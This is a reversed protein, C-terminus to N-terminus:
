PSPADALILFPPLTSIITTYRHTPLVRVHLALWALRLLRLRLPPAVRLLASILLVAVAVGLLLWARPFVVSRYMAMGCLTSLM